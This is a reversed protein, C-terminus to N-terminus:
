GDVWASFTNEQESHHEETQWGMGYFDRPMLSQQHVEYPNGEYVGQPDYGIPAQILVRPCRSILGGLTYWM